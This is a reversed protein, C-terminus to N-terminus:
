ESRLAITPDIRAARRAPIYNALLAILTLLGIAGGFAVVDVPSIGYVAVIRGPEEVSLPSLLITNVISFITTNVGIGLMLTITAVATFGPAKRLGRAAYRIDQLLTDMFRFELTKHHPGGPSGPASASESEPLTLLEQGRMRSRAALRLTSGIETTTVGLWRSFGGAALVDEQRQRFTQRMEAAFPAAFWGPLTALALRFGSDGLTQLARSM